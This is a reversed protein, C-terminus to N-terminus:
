QVTEEHISVFRIDTTRAFSCMGIYEVWVECHRRLLLSKESSIHQTWALVSGQLKSGNRNDRHSWSKKNTRYIYKQNHKRKSVTPTHFRIFAHPSVCSLLDGSGVRGLMSLRHPRALGSSPPPWSGFSKAQPAASDCCISWTTVVTPRTPSFCMM